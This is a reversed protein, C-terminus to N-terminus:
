LWRELWDSGDRWASKDAEKMLPLFETKLISTTDTDRLVDLLQEQARQKLLESANPSERVRVSTEGMDMGRAAAWSLVYRDVAPPSAM